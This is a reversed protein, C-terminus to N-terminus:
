AGLYTGLISVFLLVVVIVAIRLTWKITRDEVESVPSVPFNIKNM